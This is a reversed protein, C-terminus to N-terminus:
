DDITPLLAAFAPGIAERAQSYEDALGRDGTLAFGRAASEATRVLVKLDAIQKLGSINRETATADHRSKTDLLVSAGSIVLLIALSIGLIFRQSLITNNNKRSIPTRWRSRSVIM